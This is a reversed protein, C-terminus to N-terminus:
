EVRMRIRGVGDVGGEMVDGRVVPGVGEPTGTYVVDGAKLEWLTSLTAIIEPLKWIMEAVDNGQKRVGNVDLWIKAKPVHGIQSVPVIASCPASHDFAKGVEWPRGLKKAEGQLDRRTMDLGVAYGFVHDLASAAPIDRGGSKLVAVLEIEHHVNKSLSPYPFLAQSGAACEILADPNKQFFFPPDRDPDFGMELTHEAYNRGVCYIRHVPFRQTTGEIPLTVPPAAPFVLDTM